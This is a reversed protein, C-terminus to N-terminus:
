PWLRIGSADYIALLESINVFRGCQKQNRPHKKPLNAHIGGIGNPDDAPPTIQVGAGRLLQERRGDRYEVVFTDPWQLLSLTEYTSDNPPKYPKKKM